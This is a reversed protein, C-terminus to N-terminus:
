VQKAFRIVLKDGADYSYAVFLLPDAPGMALIKPLLVPLDEVLSDIPLANVPWWKL